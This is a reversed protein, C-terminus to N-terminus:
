ALAEPLLDIVEGTFASRDGYRQQAIEGAAGLWLSALAAKCLLRRDADEESCVAADACLAALIGALADGSGGKALAPSGQRQILVSQGDSALSVHNKLLVTSRYRVALSRAAGVPDALVADTETGLLRAAEAPHPTLVTQSPLDFAQTALLNLADADLIAPGSERSLLETLRKRTEASRSLGCGAALADHPPIRETLTEEAVCMANPVLTQLIPIIEKPCAVTVLGAGARLAAKAAMAAAGAMGMSGMYMLVRGATGKHAEPLRAPIWGLANEKLLCVDPESDPVPLAIGALSVHGALSPSRTLLLGPKWAGITVTHTARVCLPEDTEADRPVAGDGGNMGSPVDVSFVIRAKLRNILRILAASDRDPMGHFGTGFLADVVCDPRFAEVRAEYGGDCVAARGGLAEYYTRMIKASETRPEAVYLVRTEFGELLLLRGLAAGDGGNNGTGCIILVRDLPRLLPVLRDRLARAADEMLLIPSVGRSFAAEERERMEKPTLVDETWQRLGNM